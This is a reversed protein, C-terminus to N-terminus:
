DHFDKVLAHLAILQGILVPLQALPYQTSRDSLAQDPDEHVEMFIGDAGAAVMARAAPATFERSGGTTKGGPMQASHTADFIVPYGSKQMIPVARVDVVLGGYGFSAGRETLLIRRNGTSEVKRVAHVMDQPAVFQGKKINVVRGTQGAALLLDTQRCLFAPIQIVDVVEAVPAVQWTEHVDTLVPLRCKEKVAQLIKLGEDLGPGRFSDVSSRNAKDFSAKFILPFSLREAMEGLREAIFMTREYREIVCPGLIFLLPHGKGIQIDNLHIEPM